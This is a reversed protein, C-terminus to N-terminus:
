ETAPFWHTDCDQPNVLRKLASVAKSPVVVRGDLQGGAHPQYRTLYVLVIILPVKAM